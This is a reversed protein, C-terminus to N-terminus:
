VLEAMDKLLDNYITRVCLNQMNFEKSSEKFAWTFFITFNRGGNTCLLLLLHIGNLSVLSDRFM